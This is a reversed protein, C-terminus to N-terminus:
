PYCYFFLFYVFFLSFLPNRKEVGTNKGPSDGHISSSPPSYDMPCCLAPCSQLSKAHVCVHLNRLFSFILSGYSGSIASRPMFTSFVVIWFSVCVCGGISMAASNIIALVHFCHLRGTVASRIFFIHHMYVTPYEDYFYHLSAMQLSTSPDLCSWVLHLLDSLLFVFIMHYWKYTPELFPCLHVRCFLFLTVSTSFLRIIVSPYPPSLIFKSTPISM